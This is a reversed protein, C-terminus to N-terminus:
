DKAVPVIGWGDYTGYMSSSLNKLMTTLVAIANPELKDERSIKIEYPTFDGKKFSLSDVKFNLVQIKDIFKQRRKERKFYVWHEITQPKTFDDGQYFLQSLLEHNIFFDNSLQKPFLSDQYYAWKKDPEIVLYNKSNAYNNKIFVNINSRLGITDKVYFVDFGACQYTIIGALKNKTHKNIINAISDSFTYLKKLGEEKPYGNKLCKSTQTGVVVLHKYYPRSFNLEMNVTVAMFGKEKQAIYTEWSEEQSFAQFINTLLIISLLTYSAKKFKFSM